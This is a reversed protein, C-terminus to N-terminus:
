VLRWRRRLAPMPFSPLAPLPLRLGSEGLQCPKYLKCEFREENRRLEQSEAPLKKDVFHFPNTKYLGKYDDINEKGSNEGIVSAVGFAALNSVNGAKDGRWERLRVKFM